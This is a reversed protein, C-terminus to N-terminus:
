VSPNFDTQGIGRIYAVLSNGFASGAPRLSVNPMQAAIQALNTQSRAELMDANVATIALPTDQVNEERFQATVIIEELGSGEQAYVPAQGALLATTAILTSVVRIPFSTVSPHQKPISSNKM